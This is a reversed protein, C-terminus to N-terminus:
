YRSDPKGLWELEMTHRGVQKCLEAEQAEQERQRREGNTSIVRPGDEQFQWKWARILNAHFEHKSWLQSITKSGEFAELAVCFKFAAAHRRWKKVM